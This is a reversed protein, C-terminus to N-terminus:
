GRWPVKLREINGKETARIVAEIKWWRANDV